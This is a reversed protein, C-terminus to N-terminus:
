KSGSWGLEVKVGNSGRIYARPYDPHDLARIFDDIQDGTMTRIREPSLESQEPTRRSFEGVGAIVRQPMPEPGDGRVIGDVIARLMPAGVRVIREFIEELSGELSIPCQGYIPGTDVPGDTVRFITVASEREGAMIQHQLPSGGRYRPLPSPHLCITPVKQYIQPPVIWSWGILAVVSLSDNVWGLGNDIHMKQDTVLQYPPYIFGTLPGAAPFAERALLKAWDRYAAVVIRGM